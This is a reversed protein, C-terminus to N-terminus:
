PLDLTIKLAADIRTMVAKDFKGLADRLRTKNIARVQECVVISELKLGGSGAAVRVHSPYVKTKNAADTISCIVVVPSFKNLADRSVVVVPRTGGQESGQVPELSVTFVDGRLVEPM